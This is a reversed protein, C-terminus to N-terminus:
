LISAQNGRLSPVPGNGGRLSPVPGNGGRLSPVPGNGGRPSASAGIASVSLLVLSVVAVAICRSM